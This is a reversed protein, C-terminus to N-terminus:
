RDNGFYVHTHQPHPKINAVARNEMKREKCACYRASHVNVFIKGDAILLLLAKFSM